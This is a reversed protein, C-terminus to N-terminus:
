KVLHHVAELIALLIRSAATKNTDNKKMLENLYSLVAEGEKSVVATKSDQFLSFM